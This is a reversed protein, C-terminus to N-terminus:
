KLANCWYNQRCLILFFYSIGWFLRGRHRSINGLRVLLLAPTRVVACRLLWYSHYITWQYIQALVGKGLACVVRTEMSIGQETCWVGGYLL